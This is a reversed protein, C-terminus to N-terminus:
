LGLDWLGYKVNVGRYAHMSIYWNIRYGRVVSEIWDVLIEMIGFHFKLYIGPEYLKNGIHITM